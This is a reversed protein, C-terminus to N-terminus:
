LGGHFSVVARLAAGSRALELVTSGGFCYGIAALAQPEVAPHSALNDLAARARQRWCGVDARLANMLRQAEPLEAAFTGDGYLDAVLAATGLGALKRACEKAADGVGRADPFLVVGPRRDQRSGDHVLWGRCRVAGDAYDLDTAELTM